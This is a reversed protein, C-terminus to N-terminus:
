FQKSKLEIYENLKAYVQCVKPGWFKIYCKKTQTLRKKGHKPTTKIKSAIQLNTTKIYKLIVNLSNTCITTTNYHIGQIKSHQCM